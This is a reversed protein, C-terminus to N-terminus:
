EQLLVETGYGVSGTLTTVDWNTLRICGHSQTKGISAPVPTGHIGYHDKSLDVWAVGVPNNPGSPLKAKKDGPNADWFLKPNYHYVPNRAIGNVKWTGIPLPDHASGTSSPFQALINGAADLLTLSRDSRDVVIKAAKPLPETDLVNPVLIVEGARSLDKGPNLRALLAPSLHFKEGLAEAVSGYGLTSLKAKEAMGEPIPAFPGAVDADLLTYPVLADASDANLAAWSADDLVGSPELGAKKQFGALALRMNSGSAADIEGTSFHARDLLVQARLLAAAPLKAAKASKAPKAPKGPKAVTDVPASEKGANNVAEATLASPASAAMAAPVTAVGACLAAILCLSTSKM